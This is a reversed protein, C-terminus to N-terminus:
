GFIVFCCILWCVDGLIFFNRDCGVVRDGLFWDIFIGEGSGICLLMLVVCRCMGSVFLYGVM